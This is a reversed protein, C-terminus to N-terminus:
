TTVTVFNSDLSFDISGCCQPVNQFFYSTVLFFQGFLAYTTIVYTYGRSLIPVNIKEKDSNFKTKPSSLHRKLELAGVGNARCAFLYLKLM